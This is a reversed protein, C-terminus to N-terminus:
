RFKEVVQTLAEFHGSSAKKKEDIKDFDFDRSIELISKRSSIKGLLKWLEGINELLIHELDLSKLVARTKPRSDLCFTPVHLSLATISPHLKSSIVLDLSSIFQVMSEPNTYFHHKVWPSKQPPLLSLSNQSYGPLHTTFFNFVVHHRLSPKTKRLSSM